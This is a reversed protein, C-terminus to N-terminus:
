RRDKSMPDRRNGDRASCSQFYHLSEPMPPLLGVAFQRREEFRFKEGPGSPNRGDQSSISAPRSQGAAKAQASAGLLRLQSFAPRARAPTGLAPERDRLWEVNLSPWCTTPAIAM